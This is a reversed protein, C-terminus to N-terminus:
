TRGGRAVLPRTSETTTHKGLLDLVLRRENADALAHAAVRLGTVDLRPSPKTAKFDVRGGDPLGVLQPVERLLLAVRPALAEEQKEWAKRARGAELWRLVLAQEAEGLEDWALPEEAVPAPFLAKLAYVDRELLETGSDDPFRRPVVFDRWFRECMAVAREYVEPVHPVSYLRHEGRLLASVDVSADEVLGCDLGVGCQMQVQLYIDPPVQDSGAIGWGDLWSHRKLEVLRRREPEPLSLDDPSCRMWPYLPHRWKQPGLLDYGTAQRYLARIYNEAAHGAGQSANQPPQVGHVIRAYLAAPGGWPSLGALMGADSAGILGAEDAALSM